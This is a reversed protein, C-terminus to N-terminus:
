RMTQIRDQRTNIRQMSGSNMQQINQSSTVNSSINASPNRVFLDQNADYTYGMNTTAEAPIRSAGQGLDYAVASGPRFNAPLNNARYYGGADVGDEAAGSVQGNIAADQVPSQIRTAMPTRAIPRDGSAGNRMGDRIPERMPASVEPTGSQAQLHGAYGRGIGQGLDRATANITGDPVAPQGQAPIDATTQVGQYEIDRAPAAGRPTGTYSGPGVRTASARTTLTVNASSASVQSHSINNTSTDSVTTENKLQPSELDTNDQINQMERMEMRGVYADYNNYNDYDAASLVSIFVNGFVFILSSLIIITLKKEARKM